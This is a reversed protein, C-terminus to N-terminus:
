SKTGRQNFLHIISTDSSPTADFMFDSYPTIDDMPNFYIGSIGHKQGFKDFQKCQTDSCIIIMDGHRLTYTRVEYDLFLFAESEDKSIITPM